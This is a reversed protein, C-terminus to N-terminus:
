PLRQENPPKLPPRVPRRKFINPEVFVAGGRAQDAGGNDAIVWSVMVPRALWGDVMSDAKAKPIAM